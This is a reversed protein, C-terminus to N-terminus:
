AIRRVDFGRGNWLVSFFGVYSPLPHRTAAEVARRLYGEDFRLSLGCGVGVERPTSIVTSPIGNARFIEYMKATQNRSRFAIIVYKM